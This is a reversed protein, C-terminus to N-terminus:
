RKVVASFATSFSMAHLCICMIKKISFLPFNSIKKNHVLMIVYIKRYLVSKRYSKKLFFIVDRLRIIKVKKEFYYNYLIFNM